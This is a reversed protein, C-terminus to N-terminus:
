REAGPETGRKFVHGFGIGARLRGCGDPEDGSEDHRDLRLGFSRRRRADM